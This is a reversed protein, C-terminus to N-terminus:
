YGMAAGDKRMESAGWYIGTEPDRMIAQYGGYGGDGPEISHGRRELEKRAVAGIGTELQLKGVDGSGPRMWDDSGVHRFRAADGAEQINLGFDIMNVLIQVHGQPQLDGGMVGFSMFPKGDKMVFAPIITQFPRKGPAYVNAHTPDLAYLEGRDQFMFGLGDAVLGSGMGRYNSQILSVMMGDKDATTLYTTDGQRLKIEGPPVNPNAREMNILKRRKAAYADSILEAVPMQYTAPDAYFKNLDEFALRKAEVMVHLADTSGRGMKKLDFAELMKLMQLAAVGQTNPPLEYVDYGRYNVSVPDVWNGAHAAFDAYRLDGGIRKFYSDMIKAIAGKYYANRGNKALMTYTRALDPNKFLQGQVPAKGNILYTAKANDIEEIDKANREFGRFGREWYFAVLQSVPFGNAAYTTAPSLVQKMPLKGFREHLAFWGDVTGPVTVTLSGHSPMETRGALKRKLDEFSRGKPSRGSGNYGYLKRTKPDWVIAFLDGGIGCGVPEMLGLAANAAIAADVASGGRKLIDLAIQTALPQATAAMGNQAIVPARTAFGHGTYRDGGGLAAANDAFSDATMLLLGALLIAFRMTDGMINTADFPLFFLLFSERSAAITPTTAPTPM